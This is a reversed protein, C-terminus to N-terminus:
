GGTNAHEYLEGTMLRTSLYILMALMVLNAAKGLYLWAGGGWRDPLRIAIGRLLFNALALMVTFLLPVYLSLMLRPGIGLADYWAYLVLYGLFFVAAYPVLYPSRKLLATIRGPPSRDQFIPFKGPYFRDRAWLLFRLAIAIYILQVVFRVMSMARRYYKEIRKNLMKLGNKVRDVGHSFLPYEALYNARDPLEAVPRYTEAVLADLEGGNLKGKNEKKLRSRIQRELSTNFQEVSIRESRAGAYYFAWMYDRDVLYEEPQEEDMPLWMMYETYVSYFPDGFQKYTGFFYPALLVLYIAIISAGQAILRVVRPAEEGEGLAGRAECRRFWFWDWAIKIVWTVIFLLLLPQTGAKVMYTVASLLGCAIALRWGPGLLMKGLLVFLITNLVWYSLEPQVYGAKFTFLLLGSAATLIGSEVLPLCTRCFLFLGALLLISLYLNIMKGREFWALRFPPRSGEPADFKEQSYFLSLFYPYGPTRQRPTFYGVPDDAIKAATNLYVKQDNAYVDSNKTESNGKAAVYYLLVVPVFALLLWRTWRPEEPSTFYDLM